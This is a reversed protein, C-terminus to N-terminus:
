DVLENIPLMSNKKRINWHLAFLMLGMLIVILNKVINQKAHRQELLLENSINKNIETQDPQKKWFETTMDGYVYKIYNGSNITFEPYNCRVTDYASKGTFVTITIVALFCITLAYIELLKSM